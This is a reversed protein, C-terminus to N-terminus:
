KTEVMLMWGAMYGILFVKKHKIKFQIIDERQKLEVNLRRWFDGRCMSVCTKRTTHVNEKKFRIKNDSFVDQINEPLDKHSAKIM